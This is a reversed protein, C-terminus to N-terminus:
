MVGLVLLNFLDMSESLMKILQLLLIGVYLYFSVLLNVEMM